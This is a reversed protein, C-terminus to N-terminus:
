AAVDKTDARRRRRDIYLRLLVTVMAGFLAYLIVSVTMLPIGLKKDSWVVLAAYTVVMVAPGIIFNLVVDSKTFRPM